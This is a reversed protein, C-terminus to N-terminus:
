AQSLRAEELQTGGRGARRHSLLWIRIDCLCPMERAGGLLRYIPQGFYKGKIDWLAIDIAAIAHMGVGSQGRPVLQWYLMDWIQEHRLPDAGMLEPAAVSLVAAKIPVAPGISSLGHGTIGEDTDIEVVCLQHSATKTEATIDLSATINLAYARIATIKM